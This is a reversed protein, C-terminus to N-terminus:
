RTVSRRRVDAATGALFVGTFVILISWSGATSRRFADGYQALLAPGSGSHHNALLSTIGLDHGLAEFAWRAVVTVSIARGGANMMPVPLVAGAFLVAPFCLMPLALTAQAPDAVAASALLGLTLAAISTVILTALLRGYTSAGLPPLRDLGRLVGLMTLNVVALVPLLVTIKAALYPAVRLGVFTERRLIPTETCIQLLGFTLGFFFAAFAMWYTTSVAATPDSSRIELAGPRFLLTFMGIVLVPAGLMIAVTLRNRRLVDINRATLVSWQTLAGALEPRSKSSSSTRRRPAAVAERDGVAESPAEPRDHSARLYVDALHEVQFHRRVEDPSGVFAVRGADVVVIRDCARLDDTNHTTIVVTTGDDALRRLTGMLNAATAPDLGSTPEDLFFAQPRTLLEVGISTRKRQGGSLDRVRVSARDTLDLQELTDAVAQDVEAASTGRPLRLRAAYRLTAAVPLDRHIIDDQPVYGILGGSGDEHDGRGNFRVTGTTPPRLGAMADLLTSKGAGSAGVIGVVEGPEISLTVDRLITRGHRTVGVGRVDIGVAHQTTRAYM